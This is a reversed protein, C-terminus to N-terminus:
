NYPCSVVKSQCNKIRIIKRKRNYNEKNNNGDLKSKEGSFSFTIPCSSLESHHDNSMASLTSINILIHKISIKNITIFTFSLKHVCKNNKITHVNRMGVLQTTCNSHKVSKLLWM